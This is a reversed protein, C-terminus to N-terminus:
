WTNRGYEKTIKGKVQQGSAHSCSYMNVFSNQLRTWPSTNKKVIALGVIFRHSKIPIDNIRETGMVFCLKNKM